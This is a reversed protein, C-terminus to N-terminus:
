DTAKFQGNELVGHQIKGNLKRVFGGPNEPDVWYLPVDKKPYLRVGPRLLRPLARALAAVGLDVNREIDADSPRRATIVVDGFKIKEWAGEKSARKKVAVPGGAPRNKAPRANITVTPTTM